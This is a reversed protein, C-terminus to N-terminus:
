LIDTVSHSSNFSQLRIMWALFEKLEKCFVQLAVKESAAGTSQNLILSPAACFTKKVTLGDKFDWRKDIVLNFM